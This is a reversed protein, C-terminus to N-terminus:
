NVIKPEKIFVLCMMAIFCCIASLGWLGIEYAEVPFVDNPHEYTGIISSSVIQLIGGGIFPGTNGGGVLTAALKEDHFEKFLPLATGQCSSAGYGILFYLATVLWLPTSDGALALYLCGATAVGCFSFLTWKRSKTFEAIIPMTPSGVILSVSIAMQVFSAKERSCHHVNELYPVGWLSSLVMLVGPAFFMFLELFWFNRIKVMVFLNKFLQVFIQKMGPTAELRSHGRFGLTEPHGRVWIFACVGLFAGIVSTGILCTRWGIEKGLMELPTQSLLSGCGGLGIMAGAFFRFQKATFWNVGIKNTPVFITGCGLGVFFRGICAVTLTRSFGCIMSGIAACINAFGIMYGPEIIDALSGIFPQVLGYPWFYMSALIGIRDASIGFDEAMDEALVATSFRHFYVFIYSAMSIIVSVWKRTQYRCPYLDNPSQELNHQDDTTLLPVTNFENTM